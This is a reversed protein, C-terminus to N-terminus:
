DVLLPKISNFIVSRINKSKKGLEEIMEKVELRKSDKSIEYECESKLIPLKIKQAYKIITSEEIYAMPRIVEVGHEKSMYKPKMVGLNGQYFTNLLFTEIIDDKHHGLALKNINKEKMLRYLIGRRMRGCMFCPNKMKNEGFLIDELNTEEVMLELGLFKCYDEIENTAISKQKPHIHIPIIEFNVKTIMKVRVLINLLALSDKGGSVGVAIRDGEEIMNYDCMAKGALSWINKNFGKSEIYKIIERGDLKSIRLKLGILKEISEAIKVRNKENLPFKIEYKEEINKIILENDIIQFRFNEYKLNDLDEINEIKM